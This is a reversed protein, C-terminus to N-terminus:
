WVFRYGLRITSRSRGPYGEPLEPEDFFFWHQYGFYFNGIGFLIGPAVYGESRYRTQYSFSYKDIDLIYQGISDEYQTQYTTKVCSNVIAGFSLTIWSKFHSEPETGLYNWRSEVFFNFNTLEVFNENFYYWGVKNPNDEIALPETTEYKYRSSIQLSLGAGLSLSRWELFEPRFSCAFGPALRQYPDIYTVNIEGDIEEAQCFGTLLLMALLFFQLSRFQSFSGQYYM